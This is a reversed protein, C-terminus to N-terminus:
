WSVPILAHEVSTFPMRVNALFDIHEVQILYDLQVRLRRLGSGAGLLYTLGCAGGRRGVQRKGM